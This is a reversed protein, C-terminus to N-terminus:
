LVLAAMKVFDTTAILVITWEELRDMIQLCNALRACVVLAM